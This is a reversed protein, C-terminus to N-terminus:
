KTKQNAIYILAERAATELGIHSEFRQSFQEFYNHFKYIQTEYVNSYRYDNFCFIRIM